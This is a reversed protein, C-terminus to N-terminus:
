RWPGTIDVFMPGVLNQMNRLTRGPLSNIGTVAERQAFVNPGIFQPVFYLGPFVGRFSRVSSVSEGITYPCVYLGNDGPNPFTMHGTQEHGSYVGSGTGFIIPQAPCRLNNVSGGLGSVSRPSYQGTTQAGFTYAALDQTSTTGGSVDSTQGVIVCAFPDPSKTSVFDGFCQTISGPTTGMGSTLLYFLRDDGCVIWDRTTSNVANSKVWRLAGSVQAVTPFIGTGTNIDSMTEYGAVRATNTTQSDDVRLYCQTGQPNPSRYAALNTGSFPKTWGLAAVKHQITGTATQNSIGTADFTYTTTTVSLVRKQGNLGAPSAGSIEAISGVEFPHGASRTVTAVGGAVVISDVNAVGFGNVLCADLVAILTGANGNLTPAGAMQSHLFKVTTM